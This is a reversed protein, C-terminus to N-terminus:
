KDEEITWGLSEYNDKLFQCPKAPVYLRLRANGILQITTAITNSTAFQFPGKIVDVSVNYGDLTVLYSSHLKRIFFSCGHALAM